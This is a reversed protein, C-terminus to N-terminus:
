NFASLSYTLTEESPMIWDASLIENSVNSKREQSLPSSDLLEQLTRRAIAVAENLVVDTLIISETLEPNASLGNFAYQCLMEPDRDLVVAHVEYSFMDKGPYGKETVVIIRVQPIRSFTHKTEYVVISIDDSM